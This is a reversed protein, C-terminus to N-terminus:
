GGPRSRGFRWRWLLAILAGAPGGAFAATMAAEVALDHTNPSLALTLFYTAVAGLLFGGGAALVLSLPRAVM